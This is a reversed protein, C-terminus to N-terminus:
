RRSAAHGAADAFVDFAIVLIANMVRFVTRVVPDVVFGSGAIAEHPFIVRFYAAASTATIAGNTM